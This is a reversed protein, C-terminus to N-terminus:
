FKTNVVQRYVKAAPTNYNRICCFAPTVGRRSFMLGWPDFVKALRPNKAAGDGAGIKKNKQSKMGPM